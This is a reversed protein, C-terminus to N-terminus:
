YILTSTSNLHDMAYSICEVRDCKNIRFAKDISVAANFDM